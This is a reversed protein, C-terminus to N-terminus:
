QGGVRNANGIKGEKGEWGGKGVKTMIETYAKKTQIKNYKQTQTNIQIKRRIDLTAGAIRESAV